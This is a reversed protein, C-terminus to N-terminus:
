ILKSGFGESFWRFGLVSRQSCRGTEREREEEFLVQPRRPEGTGQEPGEGKGQEPCRPRRPEGKGQEQERGRGRVIGVQPRRARVSRENRIRNGRASMELELASKMELEGSSTRITSSNTGM